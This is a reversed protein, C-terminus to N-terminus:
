CGALNYGGLADDAGVFPLRHIDAVRGSTPSGCETAMCIVIDPERNLIGTCFCNSEKELLQRIELNIATADMDSADFEAQKNFDVDQAWPYTFNEEESADFFRQQTRGALQEAHLGMDHSKHDVSAM